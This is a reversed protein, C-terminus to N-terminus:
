NVCTQPTDAPAVEVDMLGSFGVMKIVYLPHSDPAVIIKLKKNRERMAKGAMALCGLIATDIYAASRLDVVVSDAFTVAHSLGFQLEKVISLDLEGSGRVMVDSGDNDVDIRPRPTM